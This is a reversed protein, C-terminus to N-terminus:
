RQMELTQEFVERWGEWGNKESLSSNHWISVFLGGVKRTAEILEASVELAKAATLNMYQRLTGDMVQFPVIMLESRKERVLDYFPFPRAMGARFGAEDNFGMTYDYRICAEEMARYTDPMRLLLWHQRAKLPQHGTIARLRGAESRLTRPRGASRYSPHLGSEYLSNYKRIIDGYDRDRHYPNHDYEGRDGVPFFFIAESGSAKLQEEIYAFSDYPDEMGGTMIRIREAPKAGSGALGKVIGGMSRIFGRSRYAWPQDVDITVLAKYENYRITLRPYYKVLEAALYKAWIEVVPLRLFGGRGATSGSGQFRGHVDPSFPLYEEYRSLMYFAASFLDFPIVGDDAAFLLPMGDLHSVEPLLPTIEGSSLLGSPRIVFPSKVKEDSYIIAPSNGLRRRDTTLEYSIGLITSFIVDTTYELRSTIEPSYIRVITKTMDAFKIFLTAPYGIQKVRIILM